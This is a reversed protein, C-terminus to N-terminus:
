RTPGAALATAVYGVAEPIAEIVPVGCRCRLAKAVRGLPGGGVIIADAGLDRVARLALVHLADELAAPRAMLAVPDDESALVGVCRTGLGIEEARRAMRNVLRGTHTVVAFRRGGHAAARMAAEAIGVVPLPLMSALNGAGPDGFASIIVADANQALRPALALVASSAEDLEADCTILPTGFPATMGEIQVSSPAHERAIEVMLTTLAETTNPNVLVIRKMLVTGVQAKLGVSARHAGTGAVSIRLRAMIVRVMSWKMGM